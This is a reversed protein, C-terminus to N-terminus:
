KGKQIAQILTSREALFARTHTAISKPLTELDRSLRGLVEAFDIDYCAPLMAVALNNIKAQALTDNIVQSTSM